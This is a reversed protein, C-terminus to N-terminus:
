KTLKALLESNKDLKEMQEPTLSARLKADIVRTLEEKREPTLGEEALVKYKKTFLNTYIGLKNEELGLFRILEYADNKAAVEPSLEKKTIEEKSVVKKDQANANLSFALTLTLIAIIKKMKKISILNLDFNYLKKM